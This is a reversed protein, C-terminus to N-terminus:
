SRFISTTGVHYLRLERPTETDKPVFFSRLLLVSMNMGDQGDLFAVHNGHPNLKLMQSDDCFKWHEKRAVVVLTQYARFIWSGFQTPTTGAHYLRLKGSRLGDGIVANMSLLLMMTREMPKALRPYAAFPFNLGDLETNVQFYVCRPANDARLAPGDYDSPNTRPPSVERLASKSKKREMKEIEFSPSQENSIDLEKSAEDAEVADDLLEFVSLLPQSAQIRGQRRISRFAEMTTNHQLKQDQVREHSCACVLDLLVAFISPQSIKECFLSVSLYLPFLYPRLTNSNKTKLEKM